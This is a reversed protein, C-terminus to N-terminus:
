VAQRLDYNNALADNILQQLKPDKFLEFWKLDAMTQPDPQPVPDARFSGPTPVQPRRSQQASVYTCSVCALLVAALLRRMPHGRLAVGVFSRRSNKYPHGETAVGPDIEKAFRKM